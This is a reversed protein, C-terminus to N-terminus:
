KRAAQVVQAIAAVVVEPEDEQIRHHSKTAVIVRSGPALRALDTQLEAWLKEVAQTPWGADGEFPLGHRIVILPVKPVPWAARVQAESTLIDAFKIGEQNLELDARRQAVERVSLLKEIRRDLDPHIADVFVLGVVDKPYTSAYLHINLGALSHGVLVYPGRIGGKTLLTHLEAVMRKSTGPKPGPESQGLGARDYRCVRTLGAVQPMVKFWTGSYVGLGGELIVTPSGAGQCEIWLKHGGVDVLQSVGTPSASAAATAASQSLSGSQSRPTEGGGTCAALLLVSLWVLRRLRRM